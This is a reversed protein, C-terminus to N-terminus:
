RRELKERRRADECSVSLSMLLLSSQSTVTAASSRPPDSDTISPIAEPRVREELRGRARLLNLLRSRVWLSTATSVSKSSFIVSDRDKRNAHPRSGVNM